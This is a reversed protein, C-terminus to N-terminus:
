NKGDRLSNTIDFTFPTNGGRHKGVSQGNVFVECRYDVAEFNLLQRKGDRPAAEFTRHYWLAETSDLRRQVGGLKSELCFPVLIQGAWEQPVETQEVPTIAYDWHGNLNQWQERQLQPRPYETWANEATVEAGWTTILESQFVKTDRQPTPLEPVKDADILHVDVFQGGGTQRCHVAMVNNGAKLAAQKEKEIPVVIYEVIYGNRELVPQGNISVQVDEDHHILLAPKAPVTALKFTKRMWINNTGWVTGIRSGPTDYTGFGGNGENWNSDDFDVKQWGEAPRRLTYKWSDVIEQATTTASFLLAVLLGLLAHIRRSRSSLHPLAM